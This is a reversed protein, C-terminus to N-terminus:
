VLVRQSQTDNCLITPVNKIIHKDKTFTKTLDKRRTLGETHGVSIIIACVVIYYLFTYLPVNCMDSVDLHNKVQVM